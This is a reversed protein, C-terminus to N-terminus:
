ATGVMSTCPATAADGRALSAWFSLFTWASSGDLLMHSRCFALIGSGDQFLTLKVAMLPERGARVAPPRCYIAFDPLRFEEVFEPAVKESSQVISFPVGEGNLVVEYGGETSRLRGAMMPVAKLAKGLSRKLKSVDVSSYRMAIAPYTAFPLPMMGFM